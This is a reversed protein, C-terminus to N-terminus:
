VSSSNAVSSFWFTINATHFRKAFVCVTHRFLKGATKSKHIGYVRQFFGAHKRCAPKKGDHFIFM